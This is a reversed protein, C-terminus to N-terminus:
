CTKFKELFCPTVARRDIIQNCVRISIPRTTRVSMAGSRAITNKQSVIQNVPRGLPLVYNRARTGFNLVM